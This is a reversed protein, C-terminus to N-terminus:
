RELEASGTLISIDIYLGSRPSALSGGREGIDESPWSAMAYWARCADASSTSSGGLSRRLSDAKLGADAEATAAVAGLDGLETKEDSCSAAEDDDIVSCSLRALWAVKPLVLPEGSLGTGALRRLRRQLARPDTSSLLLM